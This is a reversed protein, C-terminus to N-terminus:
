NIPAIDLPRFTSYLLDKFFNHVIKRWIAANEKIKRKRTRLNSVIFQSSLTVLASIAGQMLVTINSKFATQKSM